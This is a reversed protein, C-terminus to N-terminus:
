ETSSGHLCPAQGDWEASYRMWYDLLIDREDCLLVCLGRLIEPDARYNGGKARYRRWLSQM